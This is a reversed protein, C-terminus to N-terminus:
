AREPVFLKNEADSPKRLVFVIGTFATRGDVVEVFDFNAAMHKIREKGYLRHANYQVEDEEFTRDKVPVGLLFLGGPKLMCWAQAMAEWDGFPNLADGYRGLGSHELSSYTTVFDVQVGGKELYLAAIERALVPTLRPDSSKIRGYELTVIQKAGTALLHAEVWPKETGIVMGVKGDIDSQYKQFIPRLYNDVKIGYVSIEQGARSKRVLSDIYDPKWTSVM